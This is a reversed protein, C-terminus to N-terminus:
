LIPRRLLDAEKFVGGVSTGRQSHRMLCMRWCRQARIRAAQSEQAQEESTRRRALAEVRGQEESSLLLRLRPWFGPFGHELRISLEALGISADAPSAGPFLGSVSRLPQTAAVSMCWKRDEFPLCDLNMSNGNRCAILGCFLSAAGILLDAHDSAAVCWGPDFHLPLDPEVRAVRCWIRYADRKGPTDRAFPVYCTQSAYEWPEFWWSLFSQSLM